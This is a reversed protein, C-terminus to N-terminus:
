NSVNKASKSRSLRDKVTKNVNAKTIPDALKFGSAYNEIVHVGKDRGFDIEIYKYADRLNGEFPHLNNNGSYDPDYWLFNGENTEFFFSQGWLWTVSAVLAAIQDRTLKNQRKQCGYIKM